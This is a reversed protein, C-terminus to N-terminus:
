EWPTNPPGFIVADWEFINDSEGPAAEIGKPPDKIFKKLDRLLRKQSNTQM